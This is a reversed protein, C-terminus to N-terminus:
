FAKHLYQHGRTVLWNRGTCRETRLSSGEACTQAPSAAFSFPTPPEISLYFPGFRSGSAMKMMKQELRMRPPSWRTLSRSRGPRKTSSSFRGSTTTTPKRLLAYSTTVPTKTSRSTARPEPRASGPHHIESRPQCKKYLRDIPDRVGDLLLDLDSEDDDDPSQEDGGGTHM